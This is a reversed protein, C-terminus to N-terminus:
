ARLPSPTAKSDPLLTRYLSWYREVAAQATFLREFRAKGALGFRVRLSPDDVLRLLAEALGDEDGPDVLLGTVGDDIQEPIGALRSAVVPRAMAMAEIVVNPFDEKAVSPLVVIDAAEYLNWWNPQPPVFRVRYGLELRAVEERLRAEEPGSGAVVLAVDARARRRVRDLAAFADRHGKNLELRAPLLVVVRGDPQELWARTQDRTEDPARPSIGNPLAATRGAPLKLVDALARASEESGTVFRDVSAATARDLPYDAWRLPSRYGVARNNVVYVVARVGALRAAVAAPNCSAAAPFGGNNVHVVDPRERRFRAYLRALDWLQFAQRALVAHALGKAIRRPWGHLGDWLDEPNPLRIGEARIRRDLRARVGAEYSASKRYTFRADVADSKAAADLLVAVMHESGGFIYSDSYYHIKM